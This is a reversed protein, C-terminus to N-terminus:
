ESIFSVSNRIAATYCQGSVLRPFIMSDRGPDRTVPPTIDWM